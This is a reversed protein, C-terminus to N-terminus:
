TGLAWEFGEALMWLWGAMTMVVAALYGSRLLRQRLPSV